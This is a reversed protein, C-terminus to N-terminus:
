WNLEYDQRVLRWSLIKVEAKLYETDEKDPEIVITEQTNTVPTGFGDLKTVTTEYIHNRVVGYYAPSLKEDDKGGLHRITFYFYTYGNVWVKVSNEGITTNIYSIADTESVLDPHKTSDNSPTYYWKKGKGTTSLVVKVYQSGTNTDYALDEPTIRTYTHITNGDNDETEVESYLYLLACLHTRLSEWSYFYDDKGNWKALARPRGNSDVLQGALIVKSPEVPSGEVYSDAVGNEGAMVAEAPAANEQFYATIYDQTDGPAPVRYNQACWTKFSEDSEVTARFPGNKYTFKEKEPNIAWFSRHYDPSSWPQYIGVTQGFLGTDTWNTDVKKILRSASPTSFVNWGLLRVYVRGSEPVDTDDVSPENEKPAPVDRGTYYIYYPASGDTPTITKRYTANKKNIDIKLDIRALVREVYLVVPKDKAEAETKGFNEASMQETEVKAGNRVYVTSSMVFKGNNAENDKDSPSTVGTEYDAIVAEIEALTKGALTTLYDAKPNVIALLQSPLVSANNKHPVTMALTTELQKEVTEGQGSNDGVSGNDINDWLFFNYFNDGEKRAKAPAGNEDFFLFLVNKVYSEAKTGDKYTGNEGGKGTEKDYEDDARSGNAGSTIVVSLYNTQADSNDISGNTLNEKACGMVLCGLVSVLIFKKMNM